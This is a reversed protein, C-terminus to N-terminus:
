CGAGREAMLRRVANAKEADSLPLLAIMALAASFSDAKIPLSEARSSVSGGVAEGRENEPSSSGGSSGRRSRRKTVRQPNQANSSQGAPSDIRNNGLRDPIFLTRDDLVRVFGPADGRPSVDATGDVAASSLCLFPSRAVFHRCHEDLRSLSKRAAIESPSGYLARLEADSEAFELVRGCYTETKM